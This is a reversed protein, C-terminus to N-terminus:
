VRYDFNCMNIHVACLYTCSDYKYNIRANIYATIEDADM